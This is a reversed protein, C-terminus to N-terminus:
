RYEVDIVGNTTITVPREGSSCSTAFGEPYVRMFSAGPPVALVAEGCIPSGQAFGNGFVVFGPPNTDVMDRMRVRVSTAGASVRSCGGPIHATGSGCRDTALAGFPGVMTGTEYYLSDTSVIPSIEFAHVRVIGAFSAGNGCAIPAGDPAVAVYFAGASARLGGVLPSVIVRTAGPPVRLTARDCFNWSPDLAPIVVGTGDVFTVAFPNHAAFPSTIEVEIASTGPPFPITRGAPIYTPRYIEHRDREVVAPSYTAVISGVTAPTLGCWGPEALRVRLSTAGAPVDLTAQGCFFDGGSGTAAFAGRDAHVFAGIPRGSADEIAVHMSREGASPHLEMWNVNLAGYAYQGADYSISEVRPGEAHAPLSLLVPSVIAFALVVAYSPISVRSM